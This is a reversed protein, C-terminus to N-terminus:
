FILIEELFGQMHGLSGKQLKGLDKIRKERGAGCRGPSCGSCSAPLSGPCCVGRLSGVSLPFSQYERM